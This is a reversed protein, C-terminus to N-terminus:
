HIQESSAPVLSVKSRMVAVCAGLARMCKLEFVQVFGVIIMIHGYMMAAPIAPNDDAILAVRAVELTNM